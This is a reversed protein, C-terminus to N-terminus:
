RLRGPITPAIQQSAQLLRRRVSAVGERLPPIDYLICPDGDAIGRDLVAVAHPPPNLDIGGAIVEILTDRGM